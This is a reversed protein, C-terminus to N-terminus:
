ATGEISVRGRAHTPTIRTIMATEKPHTQCRPTARCARHSAPSGSELRLHQLAGEVLHM